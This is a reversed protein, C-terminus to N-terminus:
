HIEGLNLLNVLMFTSEGSVSLLIHKSKMIVDNLVFM